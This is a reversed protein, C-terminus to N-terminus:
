QTKNRKRQKRNTQINTKPAKHKKGAPIDTKGKLRAFCAAEASTGSEGKEGRSMHEVELVTIGLAAKEPRRM